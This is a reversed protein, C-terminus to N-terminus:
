RKNRFWEITKKIGVELKISPQWRLENKARTYELASRKQDVTRGPGHPIEKANEFNSKIMNALTNVDTEITTGINFIGARDSTLADLNADVVDSVYVYDRTQTGDGHITPIDNKIFKNIFIAVVGGEGAFIQRPGYVNAYRLVVYPLKYTKFYYELYKEVALKAIGYPSLPNPRADETTPVNVTDGYVACTSSFIIKKVGFNKCNELLNISGLINQEADWVPNEVSKTVDLQAALHYVIEPKEKAFVKKLKDSNINLKIFKADKNVNTKSGSLLNDVVVVDHGQKVLEDVLNSGIFGAGGTVLIKM